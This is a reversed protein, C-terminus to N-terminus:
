GGAEWIKFLQTWKWCPSAVRSRARARSRMLQLDFIQVETLNGGVAPCAHDDRGCELMGRGCVCASREAEQLDFNGASKGLEEGCVIQM